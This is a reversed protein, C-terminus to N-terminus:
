LEQLKNLVSQSVGSAWLTGAEGHQKSSQLLNRLIAEAENGKGLRKTEAKLLKDNTGAKPVSADTINVSLRKNEYGSVVAEAKPTLHLFGNHIAREEPGADKIASFMKEVIKYEQNLCALNFDDAGSGARQEDTMTLELYAYTLSLVHLLAGCYRAYDGSPDDYNSGSAYYGWNVSAFLSALTPTMAAYSPNDTKNATLAKMNGQYAKEFDAKNAEYGMKCYSMAMLDRASLRMVGGLSSISGGGAERLSFDYGAGLALRQGFLTLGDRPSMSIVTDWSASVNKRSRRSSITIGSDSIIVASRGVELRIEEGAKIVVRNRARVHADGAYLSSDDGDRDGFPRADADNDVWGECDALLELRKARTRHHNEARVQIDGTSQVNLRDIDPCERDDPGKWSTKDHYFGIESWAHASTNDGTKRYRLVEGRKELLAKKEALDGPAFDNDTTNPLYGMLYLGEADDKDPMSVLVREGLRPFRFLGSEQGGLPTVMTVIQVVPDNANVEAYFQYPNDPVTPAVLGARQGAADIRGAADCVTM